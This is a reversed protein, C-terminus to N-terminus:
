IYMIFVKKRKCEKLFMIVEKENGVEYNLARNKIKFAKKVEKILNRNVISFEDENDSIIDIIRQVTDPVYLGDKDLSRKLFSAEGIYVNPSSEINQSHECNLVNEHTRPGNKYDLYYKSGIVKSFFCKLDEETVFGDILHIYVDVAM